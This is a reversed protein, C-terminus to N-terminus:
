AAAPRQAEGDVPKENVLSLVDNLSIRRQVKEEIPGEISVQSTPKGELAALTDRLEKELKLVQTINYNSAM